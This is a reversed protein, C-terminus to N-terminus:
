LTVEGKSLREQGRFLDRLNGHRRQLAWAVIWGFLFNSSTVEVFHARRITEPMIPNPMLLLFGMLVSFLLAVALNSEWRRGEMMRIVPVALIAWIVGRAVQLLPMWAPTQLDGYYSQFADGVLPMFVLLGFLFYVVVYIVGIALFRGIWAMWGIFPTQDPEQTDRTGKMKGHILVAVPSFLAAVVAGHVFQHPIMAAPMIDVLYKLFVVAEIASLFTTVGYQVLFIALVLRWGTWRSRVIPYSLVAAHCACVLLLPLAVDAPDISQVFYSALEATPVPLVMGMVTNAVTYCLFLIITLAVIKLGLTLTAKTKM